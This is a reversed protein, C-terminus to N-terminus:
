RRRPLWPVFASTTEVYEQYGPKTTAPTKELLTVGSVRLLLFTILLPSVIAFVGNPVSLAVLYHGWWMISEGYYSFRIPIMGHHGIIKGTDVDVLLWMNGWGEPTHLWEWEFQSLKRSRGAVLNYLDNLEEKDQEIITNKDRICHSFLVLLVFGFIIIKSKWLCRDEHMKQFM